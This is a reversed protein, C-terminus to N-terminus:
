PFRTKSGNNEWKYSDVNQGLLTVERYGKDWLDKVENLYRNLIAAEKLEAYM